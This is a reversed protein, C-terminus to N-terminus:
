PALPRGHTTTPSRPDARHRANYSSLERRLYWAHLALALMLLGLAVAAWADLNPNKPGSETAGIASVQSTGAKYPLTRSTPVTTTPADTGPTSPSTAPTPDSPPVPVISYPTPLVPVSPLPGFGGSPTTVPASPPAPVDVTSAAPVSAVV